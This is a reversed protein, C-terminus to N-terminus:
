QEYNAGQKVDIKLSMGPHISCEVDVEGLQEFTMSRIEGQHFVGLDFRNVESSSFINHYFLDQNIFQIRDGVEVQMQEVPSGQFLFMTNKQSVVFEKAVAPLAVFVVLLIYFGRSVVREM